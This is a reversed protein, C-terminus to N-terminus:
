LAPAEDPPAVEVLRALREHNVISIGGGHHRKVLGDAELGRLTRYMMVRSTGIMAALDVRQAVPHPTDFIAEGYRTLIAAMRQRASEFTREDLRVNHVVAFDSALDLLGVALGGDQLALERVLRPEWTAWKGDTLAVLEYLADANPDTISRLGGFYGPGAILAAYVRGTEVVRRDMVRGDLLIFPPLAIGRAHLVDRRGFTQQRVADELRRLTSADANPLLRTLHTGVSEIAGM